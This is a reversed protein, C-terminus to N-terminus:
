LLTGVLSFFRSKSRLGGRLDKGYTSFMMPDESVRIERILNLGQVVESVWVKFGGNSTSFNSFIRLFALRKKLYWSRESPFGEDYRSVMMPLQLLRFFSSPVGVQSEFVRMKRVSKLGQVVESVKRVGYFDWQGNFFNFFDWGSSLFVSRKLLIGSKFSRRSRFSERVWSIM